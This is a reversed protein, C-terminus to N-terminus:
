DKKKSLYLLMYIYLYLFCSVISFNAAASVELFPNDLSSNKSTIFDQGSISSCTFNTVYLTKVIGKFSDFLFDVPPFIYFAKTNM